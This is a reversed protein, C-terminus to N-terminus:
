DAAAQGGDEVSEVAMGHSGPELPQHDRRCGAAKEHVQGHDPDGPEKRIQGLREELPDVLAREVGDVRRETHDQEVLHHEQHEGQGSRVGSLDGRLVLDDRQDDDATHELVDATEVIQFVPQGLRSRDPGDQEVHGAGDQHEQDHGAEGQQPVHCRLHARM